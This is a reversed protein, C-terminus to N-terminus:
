ELNEKIDNIISLLFNEQLLKENSKCLNLIFRVINNSKPIIFTPYAHRSNRAPKLVEFKVLCDIENLLTDCQIHPQKEQYLTDKDPQLQMDAPEYDFDGQTWNLM